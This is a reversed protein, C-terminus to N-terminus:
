VTSRAVYLASTEPSAVAIERPTVSPLHVEMRVSVPVVIGACIVPSFLKSGADSVTAFTVSTAVVVVLVSIRPVSLAAAADLRLIVFELTLVILATVFLRGSEPANDDSAVADSRAVTSVTTSAISTSVPVVMGACIVPNFLRSAAPTLDAIPSALAFRSVCIASKGVTASNSARVSTAAAYKSGALSATAFTVRQSVVVVLVSM